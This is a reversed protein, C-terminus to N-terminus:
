LFRSGTQTKALKTVNQQLSDQKLKPTSAEEYRSIVQNAFLERNPDPIASGSSSSDVTETPSM